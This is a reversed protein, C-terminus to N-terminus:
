KKAPRGSKTEAPKSPEVEVVQSLRLLSDLCGSPIEEEPVEDGAARATGDVTINGCFRFVRM